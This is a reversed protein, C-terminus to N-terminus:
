GDAELSALEASMNARARHERLQLMTPTSYISPRDLFHRLVVARGTQWAQTNIHAYESRVGNAYALYQGAHAGLIALDADLLVQQSIDTPRHDSTAMILAGVASVRDDSWGIDLLQRTALAASDAENTSSMPQYVADHFLAAALVAHTAPVPHKSALEVVHRCVWMVHTATHYRRHPERHRELLADVVHDHHPGAVHRWTRRFEIEPATM